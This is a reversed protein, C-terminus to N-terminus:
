NQEFDPHFVLGYLNDIGQNGPLLDLTTLEKRLDFFLEAKADPENKFSYLIGAQEGIFLRNSGPWRALLLPKELKINSFARVIKYPPPPDPSGIVRSATWPVRGAVSKPLAPEDAQAFCRLWAAVVVIMTAAKLIQM